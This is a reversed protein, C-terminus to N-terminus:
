EDCLESLPKAAAFWLQRLEIKVFRLKMQVGLFHSKSPCWSEGQNKLQQNQLHLESQVIHKYKERM